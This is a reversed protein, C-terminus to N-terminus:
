YCFVGNSLTLEVGSRAKCCYVERMVIKINDWRRRTRGLLRREFSQVVFMQYAHNGKGMGVLNGLWGLRMFTLLTNCDLQRRFTSSQQPQLNFDEPIEV